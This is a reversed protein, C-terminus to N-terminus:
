KTNVIRLVADQNGDNKGLYFACVSCIDQIAQPIFERYLQQHLFPPKCTDVFMTPYRRVEKVLFRIMENDIFGLEPINSVPM